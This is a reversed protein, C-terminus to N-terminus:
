VTINHFDTMSIWKSSAFTFTFAVNSFILVTSKYPAIGTLCFILSFNLSDSQFRFKRRLLNHLLFMNYPTKTNTLVVNNSLSFPRVNLFFYFCRFSSVLLINFISLVSFSFTEDFGYTNLFLPKFIKFKNRKIHPYLNNACRVSSHFHLYQTNVHKKNKDPGTSLGPSCNTNGPLFSSLRRELFNM